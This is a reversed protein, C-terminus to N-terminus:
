LSTDAASNDEAVNKLTLIKLFFKGWIEYVDVGVIVFTAFSAYTLQM